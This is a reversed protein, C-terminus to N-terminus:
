RRRPICVTRLKPGCENQSTPGLVNITGNTAKMTEEHACALSVPGATSESLFDLLLGIMERSGIGDALDALTMCPNSQASVEFRIQFCKIPYTNPKTVAVAM